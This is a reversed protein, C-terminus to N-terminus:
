FLYIVKNTTLTSSCCEKLRWCCWVYHVGMSSQPRLSTHNILLLRSRWGSWVYSKRYARWICYDPVCVSRWSTTSEDLLPNFMSSNYHSDCIISDGHMALDKNNFSKCNQSNGPASAFMGSRASFFIRHHLYGMRRTQHLSIYIQRNYWPPVIFASTYCLEEYFCQCCMGLSPFGQDPFPNQLSTQELTSKYKQLLTQWTHAQTKSWILLATSDYFTFKEWHILKTRYMEPNM